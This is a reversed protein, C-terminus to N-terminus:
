ATFADPLHRIMGRGLYVEVVDFRVPSEMLGSEELYATAATGLRQQKAKTVAEGPTGFRQSRRAKVEVFVLYAGDQMVLDIEYNGSRYNKYLFRFGKEELHKRAMQEARQGVATTSM